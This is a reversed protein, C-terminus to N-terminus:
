TEHMWPGGVKCQVVVTSQVHLFPIVNCHDVDENIHPQRNVIATHSKENNDFLMPTRILKPLLGRASRNFLLTAWRQIRPSIPTSRIQLLAMYINTNM